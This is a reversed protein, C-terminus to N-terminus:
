RSEPEPGFEEGPHPREEGVAANELDLCRNKGSGRRGVRV